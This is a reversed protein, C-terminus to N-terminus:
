IKIKSENCARLEGVCLPLELPKAGPRNKSAYTGSGGFEEIRSQPNPSRGGLGYPQYSVLLKASTESCLTGRFSKMQIVIIKLGGRMLLQTQQPIRRAM